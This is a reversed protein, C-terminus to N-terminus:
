IGLKARFEEMYSRYTTLEDTSMEDPFQIDYTTLFGVLKDSLPALKLVGVKSGQELKIKGLMFDTVFKSEKRLIKKWEQPTAALIFTARKKAEEETYFGLKILKGGDLDNGFIIDREIGWAPEANVRYCVLMTLKKFQEEYQPESAYVKELDEFWEPTCYQYVTM